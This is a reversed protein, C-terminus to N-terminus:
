SKERTKETMLSEWTLDAWSEILKVTKLIHDINIVDAVDNHIAWRLTDAAIRFRSMALALAIKRDHKRPM